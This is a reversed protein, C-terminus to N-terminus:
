REIRLRFYPLFFQVTTYPRTDRGGKKRPYGRKEGGERGISFSYKALVFSLASVPSRTLKGGEGKEGRHEEKGKKGIWAPRDAVIRFSFSRSRRGKKM